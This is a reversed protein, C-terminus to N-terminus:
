GLMQQELRALKARVSSDYIHNGIQLRIGGILTPDIVNDIKLSKKGIMQSFSQSIKEAEEETLERTSFVTAVAVGAQEFALANFSDVFNGLEDMRNNDLLLNLANKVDVTANEIVNQVIEKKKNKSFAPSELLDKLGETGYFAKKIEVLQQQISEVEGKQEALEFMAKAYRDAVISKTM